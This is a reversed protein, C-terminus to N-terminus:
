TVDAVYWDGWELRLHLNRVEGTAGGLGQVTARRMGRRGTAETRTGLTRLTVVARPAYAGPVIEINEIRVASDGLASMLKALAFTRAADVTQLREVAAELAEGPSREGFRRASLYANGFEHFFMMVQEPPVVGDLGLAVRFKETGTRVVIDALQAQITDYDVSEDRTSIAELAGLFDRMADEGNEQARSAVATVIEERVQKAFSPSTMRRAARIEERGVAALFDRARAEARSQRAKDGELNPRERLMRTAENIPIAYGGRQGRWAWTVVGVARGYRDLVPGGSQGEYVDASLGVFEGPGALPNVVDLKGVRSGRAVLSVKGPGFAFPRSDVRQWLTVTDEPALYREVPADSASALKLYPLPEKADIKLLALDRVPDMYAISVTRYRRPPDSAPLVVDEIHDADEIVHRNTILYGDPDVVFGMGRGVDTTVFAVGASHRLMVDESLQRRAQGQEVAVDGYRARGACGGLALAVSLSGLLLSARLTVMQVYAWGAFSVLRVKRGPTPEAEASDDPTM